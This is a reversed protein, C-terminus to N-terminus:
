PARRLRARERFVLFGLAGAVLLIVTDPEAVQASTGFGDAQFNGLPGRYILPGAYHTGNLLRGLPDASGLFAAQSIGPSFDMDSFFTSAGTQLPEGAFFSGPCGTGANDGGIEFTGSGAHFVAVGNAYANINTAALGQYDLHTLCPGGPSSSNGFVHNISTASLSDVLFTYEFTAPAPGPGNWTFAPDKVDVFAKFDFRVESGQALVPLLALIFAARM